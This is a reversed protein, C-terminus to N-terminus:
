SSGGVWIDFKSQDQVWGRTASSWYRLDEPRLTFRLTRTEGPRLSVRQFGKLERVPRASTGSRQHIYLQAVEDGARSGSNKLDVTVTVPQGPATVPQDVRLNSYDFTTYSLGHGFVYTPANSENWYRKNTNAPDHSTLHAYTYPAQAADRIWSFP